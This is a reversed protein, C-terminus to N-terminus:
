LPFFEIFGEKFEGFKGKYPERGVAKWKQGNPLWFTREGQYSETWGHFPHIFSVDLIGMELAIHERPANGRIWIARETAAHALQELESGTLGQFIDMDWLDLDINKGQRHLAIYRASRSLHILQQYSMKNIEM